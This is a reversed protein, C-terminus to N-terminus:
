FRVSLNLGGGVNLNNYSQVFLGDTQLIDYSIFTRLAINETIPLQLAIGFSNLLDQRDQLVHTFSSYQLRYFPQLDAHTCLWWNGAIVLSHDTRDNYDDTNAPFPNQTTTFRYDGEYGVVISKNDAIQFTYHAAWHPVIERYFENYNGSDLFRRFDTGLSFDWNHRRWTAGGFVTQVNFDFVNIPVVQPTNQPFTVIQVHDNGLMGYTFWQHQYGVEPSLQGGLVDYADPALAVQITSVLVDSGIPNKGVLAGKDALFVNDTYFLQEDAFARLYHRRGKMEVPTQPGVDSTEGSYLEPAANTVVEPSQLTSRFRMADAQQSASSNQACASGATYLLGGTVTSIIIKKM